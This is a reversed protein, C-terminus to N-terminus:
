EKESLENNTPLWAIFLLRRQVTGRTSYGLGIFIYLVVKQIVTSYYSSTLTCVSVHVFAYIYQIRPHAIDRWIPRWGSVVFRTDFLTVYRCGNDRSMM